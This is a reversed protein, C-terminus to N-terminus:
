SGPVNRYRRGKGKVSRIVKHNRDYQRVRLTRLEDCRLGTESMLELIAHLRWQKLTSPNAAAARLTALDAPSLAKPALKAAVPAKLYAFPDVFHPVRDNIRATFHKVTAVRRAVTSPAEFELREDIWDCGDSFSLEGLTVTGRHSLYSLFYELDLRKARSTCDDGAAYYRVYSNVVTEIATDYIEVRLSDTKALDLM